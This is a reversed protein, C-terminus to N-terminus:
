GRKIEIIRSGYFRDYNKKLKYFLDGMVGIEKVKKELVDRVNKIADMMVEFLERKSINICTAIKTPWYLDIVGDCVKFWIDRGVFNEITCEKIARETSKIQYKLKDKLETFTFVDGEDDYYRKGRKTYTGYLLDIVKPRFLKLKTKIKKLKKLDSKYMDLQEKHAEILREKTMHRFTYGSIIISDMQKSYDYWHNVEVKTLGEIEGIEQLIIDPM